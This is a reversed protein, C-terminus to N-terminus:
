GQLGECRELTLSTLSSLPRLAPSAVAACGDVVLEELASHNQAVQLLRV